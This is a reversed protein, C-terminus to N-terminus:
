LIGQLQVGPPCVIVLMLPKQKEVVGCPAVVWKALVMWSPLQKLFNIFSGGNKSRDAGM